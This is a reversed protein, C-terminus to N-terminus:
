NYFNLRKCLFWGKLIFFRDKWTFSRGKLYLFKIIRIFFSTNRPLFISGKTLFHVEWTYFHVEFGSRLFDWLLFLSNYATTLVDNHLGMEICFGTMLNKIPTIDSAYKHFPSFFYSRISMRSGICSDLSSLIIHCSHNYIVSKYVKISSTRLFSPCTWAHFYLTTTQFNM